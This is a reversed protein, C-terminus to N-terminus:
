RAPLTKIESPLVRRLRSPRKRKDQFFFADWVGADDCDAYGESGHLGSLETAGISRREFGFGSRQAETKHYLLGHMPKAPVVYDIIGVCLGRLSDM